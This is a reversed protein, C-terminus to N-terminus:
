STRKVHTAVYGTVGTASVRLWAGAELATPLTTTTFTNPAAATSKAFTITGTGIQANGQALTVAVDTPIYASGVTVFSIAYDYGAPGVNGQVGQVGQDGRNGQIGQVGQIGRGIALIWRGSRNSVASPRIYLQGDDATLNGESWIYVGGNGDGLTNASAVAIVDGNGVERIPYNRLATINRLTTIFNGVTINASGFAAM